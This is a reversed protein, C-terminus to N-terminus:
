LLPIGILKSHLVFLFAIYFGIGLIVLIIDNLSNEKLSLPKNAPNTVPLRKLTILDLIAWVLFSGFLLLDALTGNVFLHLMVFLKVSMLQPHATLKSIKGPFYPALFFIFVPLLMIMVVIKLWYPPYYLITPALRAEAYGIIILAFGILSIFGYIIKWLLLSKQRYKERFDPVFIVISHIGLFLILGLILLLM